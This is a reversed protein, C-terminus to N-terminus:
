KWLAGVTAIVVAAISLVLSLLRIKWANIKEREQWEYAQADRVEKRRDDDTLGEALAIDLYRSKMFSELKGKTWM